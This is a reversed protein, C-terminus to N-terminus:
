NNGSTLVNALRRNTDADVTMWRTEGEDSVFKVRATAQGVVEGLYSLERARYEQDDM